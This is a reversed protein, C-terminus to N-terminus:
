KGLTGHAAPESIIKRYDAEESPVCLQEEFDQRPIWKFNSKTIAFPKTYTKPDNILITVEMNNHNVRTYREEVRMEISHPHGDNDLWSREDSGVTEM